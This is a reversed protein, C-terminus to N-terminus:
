KQTEKTSYSKIFRLLTLAKKSKICVQDVLRSTKLTILTAEENIFGGLYAQITPMVTDNALAGIVIDYFNGQYTKLRNETVFHLWEANASEFKRVSLSKDAVKMPSYCFDQKAPM